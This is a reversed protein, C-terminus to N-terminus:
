PEAQAVLRGTLRAHERVCPWMRVRATHRACVAAAALGAGAGARRRGAKSPYMNATGPFPSFFMASAEPDEVYV